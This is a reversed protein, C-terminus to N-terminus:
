LGLLERVRAAFVPVGAREFADLLESVPRGGGWAAAQETVLTEFLAPENEVATALWVDPKTVTVGYAQLPERLYGRDFTFLLQAGGAIALACVFQDNPDKTLASLDVDDPLDALDVQGKPFTRPLHGVWSEAVEASLGKYERLVRTVEDLLEDSWILDLLLAGSAARGMLEHLVRSYIVNSDLVARPVGGADVSM